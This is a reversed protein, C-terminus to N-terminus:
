SRVGYDRARCHKHASAPAQLKAYGRIQTRAQRIRNGGTARDVDQPQPTSRPASRTSQTEHPLIKEPRGPNGGMLDLVKWALFLPCSCTPGRRVEGGVSIWVRSIEQGTRGASGVGGCEGVCLSPRTGKTETLAAGWARAPLYSNGRVAQSIGPTSTHDDVQKATGNEHM